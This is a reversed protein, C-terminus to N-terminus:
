YQIVPGMAVISTHVNPNIVVGLKPTDDNITALELCIDAIRCGLCTFLNIPQGDCSIASDTPREHVHPMVCPAFATHCV